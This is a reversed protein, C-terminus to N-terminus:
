GDLRRIRVNRFWVGDGHDQVGIAGRRRTGYAPFASGDRFKSAAVRAAWAPSTQDAEVITRGNLGHEIRGDRVTIRARNWEGAPRVVDATPVYLDYLSGSRHSPYRADDHCADDIVQMELGTRWPFDMEPAAGVMYFVGSNGCEAVKWELELEFDGYVGEAMLDGGEGGPTFRIAGDEVSWGAPVDTRNYGHWGELTEGDFLDVWEAPRVVNGTMPVDDPVVADDTMPPGSGCGAAFLAAALLPLRPM